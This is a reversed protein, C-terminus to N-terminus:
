PAAKRPEGAPATLLVEVQRAALLIEARGAARLVVERFRTDHLAFSLRALVQLHSRMTPCILSFLV